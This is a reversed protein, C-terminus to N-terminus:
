SKAAAILAEKTIFNLRPRGIEQGAALEAALVKAWEERSILQETLPALIEDPTTTPEPLVSTDALMANMTALSDKRNVGVLGIPGRKIWGVSWRTM